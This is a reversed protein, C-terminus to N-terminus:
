APQLLWALQRQGSATGCEAADAISAGGMEVTIYAAPPVFTCPLGDPLTLRAEIRQGQANLVATVRGKVTELSATVQALGAPQPAFRLAAFGDGAPQLGAVGNVLHYTPSASFGHCLSATPAFSEWLTTAGKALMPGYFRRMLDLAADARGVKFLAEYVFHSYFTNALVVGEEEDLPAGSPAIPPAATFTLRAPDIIRDIIRAWREPPAGGWLIMAANAHQSVRLDQVGSVPDVCDVYVGRRADWHRANLAARVEATAKQIAGLDRNVRDGTFSRAMLGRLHGAYVAFWKEDALLREVYFFLDECTGDYSACRVDPQSVGDLAERLVRAADVPGMFDDVVVQKNELAKYDEFLESRVTRRSVDLAVGILEPEEDRLLKRLMQLFGFVANTPEGKKNSLNRIAYYARFINAFGDILFLRPKSM